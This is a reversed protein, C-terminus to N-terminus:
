VFFSSSNPLKNYFSCSANLPQNCWQAFIYYSQRRSM